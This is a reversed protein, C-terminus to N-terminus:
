FKCVKKSQKDKVSLTKKVLKILAGTYDLWDHIWLENDKVDIFGHKILSETYYKEDGVWQSANPIFDRYRTLKRM